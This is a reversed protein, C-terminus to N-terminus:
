PCRLAATDTVAPAARGLPNDHRWVEGTETDTVTLRYAVNTTAASFVWHHGDLACGDLVKVMLEWNDPAFFWFLGSGDGGTPVVRGNGHHGRSDEWEVEVRYRGQRLCLTTPGAVCDGTGGAPPAAAALFAFGDDMSAQPWTNHGYGDRLDSQWAVGLAQWQSVLRQYSGGTYNPDGTGYYMRIPPLPAAAPHTVPYFPASLTFVAAAPLAGGYALLYAYAGGASHGALATRAPDLPVAGAAAALAAALRGEDGPLGWGLDSVSKPLM